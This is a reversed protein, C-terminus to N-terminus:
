TGWTQRWDQISLHSSLKIAGRCLATDRRVEQPKEASILESSHGRPEKHTVGAAAITFICFQRKGLHLHSSRTGYLLLWSTRWRLGKNCSILCHKFLKATDCLDKKWFNIKKMRSCVYQIKIPHNTVHVFLFSKRVAQVFNIKM